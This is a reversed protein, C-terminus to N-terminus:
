TIERTKKLEAGVKILEEMKKSNDHTYKKIDKEIREIKRELATTSSSM